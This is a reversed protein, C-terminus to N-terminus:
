RFGDSLYEGGNSQMPILGRSWLMTKCAMSKTHDFAVGLDKAENGKCTLALTWWVLFGFLEM